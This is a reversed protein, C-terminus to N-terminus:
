YVAKLGLLMTPRFSGDLGAFFNECFDPARAKRQQDLELCRGVKSGVEAVEQKDQKTHQNERLRISRVTCQVSPQDIERNEEGSRDGHREEVDNRLRMQLRPSPKVLQPHKRKGESQGGAHRDVVSAAHD